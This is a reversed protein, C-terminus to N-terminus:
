LYKDVIFDVLKVADDLAFKPVDIELDMDSVVAILNINNEDNIFIPKKGTAKRVIEIKPRKEKKYGEALVLDMDTFYKALADISETNEYKVMGIKGMTAIITTDAGAAQHRWSDKGKRDFQFEHRSHKITGVKFGRNKLERILKEVLTTKGSGSKGIISIIPPQKM